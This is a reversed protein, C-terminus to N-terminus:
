RRNRDDLDRDNLILGSPTTIDGNDNRRIPVGGATDSNGSRPASGSPTEITIDEPASAYKDLLSNVDRTAAPDIHGYRELQSKETSLDDIERNINTVLSNAEQAAVRDEFHRAVDEYEGTYTSAIEQKVRAINEMAAAREAESKNKDDRIKVQNSYYGAKQLFAQREPESLKSLAQSSRQMQHYAAEQSVQAATLRANANDRASKVQALRSKVSRGAMMNIPNLNRMERNTMQKFVSNMSNGFAKPAQAGPKAGMMGVKSASERAGSLGGIAGSLIGKQGVERGAKVGAYAGGAFGALGTGVAGLIPTERLRSMPNLNLSSDLKLGFIDKLLDPIKKVFLLIGVIIFVKALSHTTGIDSNYMLASILSIGFYVAGLRVFLDLYTSIVQKIWKNFIGSKASNPDIYSIIPIPSILELFGFKVTRIAIDFCFSLFLLAALIGIATSVLFKYDVGYLDGNASKQMFIPDGDIEKHILDYVSGQNKAAVYAAGVGPTAFFQDCAQNMTEDDESVGRAILESCSGEEGGDDIQYFATFIAVKIEEGVKRKDIPEKTGDKYVGNGLILKSMVDDDKILATQVERLVRFATPTAVILLLVVLINVIMKKGGKSQDKFEDPNVIYKILSFSVKFLMFLGLLAYVRSAFESFFQDDFPTAQAIDILLNYISSVLSYVVSDITGLLGVFLKRIWGM